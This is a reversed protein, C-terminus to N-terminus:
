PTHEECLQPAASQKGPLPQVAYKVLEFRREFRRRANRLCRKCTKGADCVGHRVMENQVTLTIHCTAHNLAKYVVGTRGVLGGRGKKNWLGTKRERIAWVYRPAWPKPQPKQAMTVSPIAM